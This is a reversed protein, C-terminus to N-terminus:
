SAPARVIQLAENEGGYAIKSGDPSWVVSYVPTEAQFVEITEGTDGDWFYINGGLDGSVLQTGDPNWDVSSPLDAHGTLVRIPQWTQTDWIHVAGDWSAAALRTGDSSWVISPIEDLQDMLHELYQESNPDWIELAAGGSTAIRTGDPNWDVSYMYGPSDMTRIGLGTSTDWIRFNFPRGGFSVTAIQTSDPRWAISTIDDYQEEITVLPQWQTTEWIRITRNISAAIKTGDPSWAVAHSRSSGSGQLEILLQLQMGSVNWVQIAGNLNASALETGDPSWAVSLVRAEVQLGHTSHRPALMSIGLLLLAGAICYKLQLGRNM